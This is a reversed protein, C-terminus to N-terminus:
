PISSTDGNRRSEAVFRRWLERQLPLALLNEPHWQVGWMWWDAGRWEMAELVGDAAWGVALLEPALRKVAQHHRTNVRIRERRLVEALPGAEGSIELDHALHERPEPVDHSEGEPRQAPLDQYLTGGLFINVAQMGRCIAWLPTRARAAGAVLDLEIADLAPDLALEVGELPEEGYRWPEFDPGGCLMLGAAAAALRAGEEPPDAPTVVRVSVSEVGSAVLAEVYPVSKDDSECCVVVPRETPPSM